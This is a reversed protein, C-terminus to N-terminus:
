PIYLRIHVEALTMHNSGGYFPKADALLPEIEKKIAAVWERSLSEKSDPTSARFMNFMFSGVKTNWTDIFYNLRARYIAALPPSSPPSLRGPVADALFQAIIHSEILIHEGGLKPSAIRLAPVLGRQSSTLNPTHCPSSTMSPQDAPVM